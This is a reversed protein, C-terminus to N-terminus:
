AESRTVSAIAESFMSALLCFTSSKPLLSAMAALLALALTDWSPSAMRVTPPVAALRFPPVVSSVVASPSSAFTPMLLASPPVWRRLMM